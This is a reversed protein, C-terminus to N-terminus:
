EVKTVKGTEDFYVKDNKKCSVDGIITDEALKCHELRGNEHLGINFLLTRKCLIGDISITEPPYFCELKGSPYFGTHTGGAGGTGECLHGQIRTDHPFACMNIRGNEDLQVWTKYPLFTDNITISESLYFGKLSWDPYFLVSSKRCPLGEIYMDEKLVGIWTGTKKIQRLKAFAIGNETIDKKWTRFFLFDAEVPSSLVILSVILALAMLVKPSRHAQCFLLTDQKLRDTVINEPLPM